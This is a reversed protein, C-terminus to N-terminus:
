QRMEGGCGWGLSLLSRVLLRPRAGLWCLREGSWFLGFATCVPATLGRELVLRAGGGLRCSALGQARWRSWWGGLVQGAAPPCPSGLSSAEPYDTWRREAEGAGM